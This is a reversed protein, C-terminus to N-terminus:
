RYIAQCMISADSSNDETEKRSELLAHDPPPFCEVSVSPSWFTSLCTELTLESWTSHPDQLTLLRPEKMRRSGTKGERLQLPFCAVDGCCKRTENTCHATPSWRTCLCCTSGLIQVVLAGSGVVRDQLLVAARLLLSQLIRRSM